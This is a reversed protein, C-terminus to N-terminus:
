RLKVPASFGAMYPAESLFSSRFTATNVFDQLEQQLAKALEVLKLHGYRKDPLLFTSHRPQYVQHSFTTDGKETKATGRLQAYRRGQSELLSFQYEDVTAAPRHEGAVATLWGSVSDFDMEVGSPPPEMEMFDDEIVTAVTDTVVVVKENKDHNCSLCMCLLATVWRKKPTM